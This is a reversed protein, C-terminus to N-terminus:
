KEIALYLEKITFLLNKHQGCAAMKNGQKIDEYEKYPDKVIITEGRQIQQMVSGYKDGKKKAQKLGDHRIKQCDICDDIEQKCKAIEKAVAIPSNDTKINKEMSLKSLRLAIKQLQIILESDNIKKSEIQNIIDEIDLLSKTIM